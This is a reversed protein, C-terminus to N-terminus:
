FIVEVDRFLIYPLKHTSTRCFEKNSSIELIREELMKFINGSVVTNKIRGVIKGHEIKYGELVSASFDGNRNYFALGPSYKVIFGSKINEIIRSSQIIGSKMTITTPYISPLNTYVRKSNRSKRLANGTPKINLKSAYKLDLLFNSLVGNEIIATKETGVGEDDFPIHNEVGPVTPDDYITVRSDFVQEGLKSHLPSTKNFVRDGKVGAIFNSLLFSLADPTFLIPYKGNEVKATNLGNKLLFILEEGLKEEKGISKIDSFGARVRYIDNKRTLEAAASISYYNKKYSGQFGSSTLISIKESKKEFDITTVIRKDFNKIEEVINKGKKLLSEQTLKEIEKNLYDEPSFNVNNGAFDFSIKEGFESNKLAEKVIDETFATSAASGIKGNKKVRLSLGENQRNGTSEIENLKFRITETFNKMHFLEFCDTEKSSIDLIKQLKKM